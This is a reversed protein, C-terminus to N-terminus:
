VFHRSEDASGMISISGRTIHDNVVKHYSHNM